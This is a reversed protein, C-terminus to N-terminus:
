YGKALEYLATRSIKRSLDFVRKASDSALADAIEAALYELGACELCERGTAIMRDAVESYCAQESLRIM